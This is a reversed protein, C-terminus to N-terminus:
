EFTRCIGSTEAGCRILQSKEIVENLDARLIRHVAAASTGFIRSQEGVNTGASPFTLTLSGLTFLLRDIGGVQHGPYALCAATVTGVYGLGWVLIKL